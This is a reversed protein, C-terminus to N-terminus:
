DRQMLSRNRLRLRLVRWRGDFLGTRHGISTMLALSGQNLMGILQDGFAEAKAHDFSQDTM